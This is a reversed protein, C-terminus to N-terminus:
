HGPEGSLDTRASRINKWSAYEMQGKRLYGYFFDPNAEIARVTPLSRVIPKEKNLAHIDGQLALFKSERPEIAM